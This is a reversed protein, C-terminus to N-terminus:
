ESTFQRVWHASILKSCHERLTEAGIEDAAAYFAVCNSVGVACVLTEECHRVLHRLGFQHAGRMLAVSFDSSDTADPPLDDTYLWKLIAEGVNQDLHSWDLFLFFIVIM